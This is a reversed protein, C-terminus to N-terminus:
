GDAAPVIVLPRTSHHALTHPVSGLLMELFGGSGRRGVVVLAADEEEAVARLAAAPSGEKVMERTRVGSDRLPGVWRSLEAGMEARYAGVDITIGARPDGMGLIPVLDLALVAVVEADLAPAHEICWRIAAEGGVSGDVGLVITRGPMHEESDLRQSLNM